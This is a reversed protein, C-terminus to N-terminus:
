RRRWTSPPPSARTSPPPRRSRAWWSRPIPEGTEHHVLYGDIVTTPSCGASWCSRSSSPTTASAATSRRSLRRQVVPLAARPRVRPLLDRRRELSVLVPEGAAGQIFNSNNTALVTQKGDFTEYGRLQNAWAGSRKGSRAFPDLYWLGVHEGSATDTVEWVKVDPHYVPVTGEPVPEFHFGFLEGAVFFMAERLKDLQLYQKVEDSDLDYKAQRVKEAYYRYDWPEIQIGRM